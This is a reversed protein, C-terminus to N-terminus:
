PIGYMRDNYNATPPTGAADFPPGNVNRTSDFFDALSGSLIPSQAAGKSAAYPANVIARGPSFLVANYRTAASGLQLTPAACRPAAASAVCGPDVAYIFYSEWGAALYWPPYTLTGGCNAAAPLLGLHSQLACTTALPISPNSPNDGSYPLYGYSARFQALTNLAALRARQEMAEFYESATIYIMRDNFQFPQAYYAPQPGLATSSPADIFTWAAGNAITYAANNYTGPVCPVPCAATVTLSDLYAAPSKDNPSTRRQGNAVAPGPLILVIAVESSLLNGRNDVVNLWPFPVTSGCGGGSFTKSLMLPNLNSLCPQGVVLNASMFMWPVEGDQDDSTAPGPLGYSLWPFRGFCRVDLKVVAPSNPDSLAQGPTWNRTACLGSPIPSSGTYTNGAGVPLDPTLLIQGLRRTGAADAGPNAAYALIAAKADILAQSGVGAAANHVQWLTMRPALVITLMVIMTLILLLVAAGRQRKM